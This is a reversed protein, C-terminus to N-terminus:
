VFHEKCVPCDWNGFMQFVVPSATLRTRQKRGDWCGPCFPGNEGDFYLGDRFQLADSSTSKALKAEAIALKSELEAVYQRFRELEIRQNANTPLGAVLEIFKDTIGM